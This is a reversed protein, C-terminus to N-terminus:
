SDHTMSRRANRGASSTAQHRDGDRGKGDDGDGGHDGDDGGGGERGMRYKIDYNIIFDLEEDTFGYHQALVCDIEDIIPKSLSPRFEQFECDERVRVFSNAQYDRMLRDFVGPIPDLPPSTTEGIPFQLVDIGTLNRGNGVTLFWLFFLTSNLVAGAVKGTREDRFRVDRFHHISRRRTPSKFYQEFDMSRIWYRPSRHYHITYGSVGPACLSAVPMHGNAELKGLVSASFPEGIQPLRGLRAHQASPHYRLRQFLSDREEANWHNFCTSWVQQGSRNEYLGLYVCLRHDVGDFLKSPRIAYTSYFACAYRGALVGRLGSMEELALLGTPVIMGFAGDPRLLSTSREMCFAYLNGAAEAKYLGPPLTYDGRVLRYEVYPPNGIIVDFGGRAMISHFEIFWHFPKHSKRWDEFAKKRRLDVGYEGALYRNLEDELPKLAARLRDKDAPTVEGGLETQQQRFLAFLEDVEAAKREVQALVDEFDLTRQGRRIDEIRAYGVLTNGARINFDIDPLPELHELSEIQAVLKLFLRLKCIEVAEEMIDVGFLNNIIITKLIFYRHNPHQEMRALVKKFDEFKRPSHKQGSRALDEVFAEMRQLCAEYLPELVNLAAFLFAGSGCTPDLISVGQIAHWFARLLEPGECEEIVDQAFQRIDLNHTILDNIDAVEGAALRARLALCRQRRVVYERWTETPLALNVGNPGSIFAEGLNYRRDFMRAKPDHMGVRVFDPLASEPIVEGDEDIVGSRVAPYIYRDPNDRLLRWVSGDGEFAIRCNRRAADFLYPIVTNQSIYGTIDERTYYAGMQKQNIYKEFIYGLVDPNIEDDRRLPREDLHWQYSDFFDFIREFAADPIAIDDGHLREIEHRLFIGGNLYPVKGLLRNAEPSRDSERKAFGEFFLPCLFDRYFRDRGRRRSEALKHRLYDGDGDLFGKKQIFYIFMLRNLTVSVYWRQMGEDPIGEVFRLFAAHESKFRDYFRRTVREVDFGQRVRGHSDVVTVGREEDELTFALYELKQLLSDGPQTHRFIHERCAAPRGIERKVWQWIQTTRAPDTYVILHERVSKAVQTEVRRRAPYSRMLEERGPCEFAVLGAKQAIAALQYTRGDVTVELSQSYRDWGLEEVFLEGLRFERLLCRCRQRDLPM